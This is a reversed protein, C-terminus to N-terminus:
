EKKKGLLFDLGKQFGELRNGTTPESTVWYVILGFVLIIVILVQFDPDDLFYLWYPLYQFWGVARGFIFLVAILSAIIAFGQIAGGIQWGLLGSLILFMIILVGIVSVNPVANNVIIVPDAEPPYNGTIHPTIFILGISLAVVMAFKKNDGLIKSKILIAYTITFVLIFPIFVDFIGYRALIDAFRSGALGGAFQFLM